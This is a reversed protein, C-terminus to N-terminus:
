NACYANWCRLQSSVFSAGFAMGPYGAQALKINTFSDGLCNGAAFVTLGLIGHGIGSIDGIAQLGAVLRDAILSM